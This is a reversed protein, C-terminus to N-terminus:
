SAAASSTPVYCTRLAHKRASRVDDFVQDRPFWRYPEGDFELAIRHLERHAVRGKRVVLTAPGAEENQEQEVIWGFLPECPQGKAGSKGAHLRLM